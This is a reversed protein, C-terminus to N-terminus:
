VGYEISSDADTLLENAMMIPAKAMLAILIADSPRVDVSTVSSRRNLRLEALYAKEVTKSWATISAM